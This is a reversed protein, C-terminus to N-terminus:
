FTIHIDSDENEDTDITIELSDLTEFYGHYPVNVTMMESSDTALNLSFQWYDRMYSEEPVIYWQKTAINKMDKDTLKGSYYRSDSYKKYYDHHEALVKLAEKAKVIDSWAIGLITSAKETHFSDGTSYMAKIVYSIM